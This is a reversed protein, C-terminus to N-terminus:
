MPVKPVRCLGAQRDRDEIGDEIFGLLRRGEATLAYLKISAIQSVESVLHHSQLLRMNRDVEKWDLGTLEAMRGRYQPTELERMMALRSTGGRRGLLLEVDSLDLGASELERTRRRWPTITAFGLVFPGLLSRQEEQGELEARMFLRHTLRGDLLITDVAYITELLLISLPIDALMLAFSLAYM